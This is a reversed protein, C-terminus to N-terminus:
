IKGIGGLGCRKLHKLTERDAKEYNPCSKMNHNKVIRSDKSCFLHQANGKMGYGWRHKCDRCVGKVARKTKM